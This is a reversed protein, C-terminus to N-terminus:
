ERKVERKIPFLTDKSAFGLIEDVSRFLKEAEQPSIKQERTTRAGEGAPTQAWASTVVQAWGALALLVLSLIIKPFAVPFRRREAKWRNMSNSNISKENTM